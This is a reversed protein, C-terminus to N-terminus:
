IDLVRVDSANQNLSSLTSVAKKLMRREETKTRSSTCVLSSVTKILDKQMPM